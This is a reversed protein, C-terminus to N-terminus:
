GKMLSAALNLYADASGSNLYGDNAAISIKRNLRGIM